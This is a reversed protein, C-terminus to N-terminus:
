LNSINFGYILFNLFLLFPYIYYKSRYFAFSNTYIRINIIWLQYILPVLSTTRNCLLVNCLFLASKRESKNLTFVASNSKFWCSFSSQAFSKNCCYSSLTHKIGLFVVNFEVTPGLASITALYRKM